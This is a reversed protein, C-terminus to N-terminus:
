QIKGEEIESDGFLYHRMYANIIWDPTVDMEYAILSAKIYNFYRNFDKDDDIGIDDRSLLIERGTFLDGLNILRRKEVFYIDETHERFKDKVPVVYKKL